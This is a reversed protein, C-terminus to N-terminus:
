RLLQGDKGPPGAPGQPGEPGPPGAPGRPGQNGHLGPTGQPGPRGPAGSAGKDGKDGQPGAVGPPGEPGAEGQPGRLGQPGPDGKPGPTGATVCCGGALYSDPMYKMIEDADYPEIMVTVTELCEMNSALFSYVGPVSMILIPKELTVEWQGGLIMPTYGHTRIFDYMDDTDHINEAFAPARHNMAHRLVKFEAEGGQKADFASVIWVKGPDLTFFKSHANIGGPEFVLTGNHGQRAAESRVHRETRLAGGTSHKM